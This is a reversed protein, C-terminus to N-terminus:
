ILMSKLILQKSYEVVRKMELEESYTNSKVKRLIDKSATIERKSSDANLLTNNLQKLVNKYSQQWIEQKEETSFDIMGFKILVKAWWSHIKSYITSVNTEFLEAKLLFYDSIAQQQAYVKKILNDSIEKDTKEPVIKLTERHQEAIVKDRFKVYSSLVKGLIGVHFKGYFTKMSVNELKDSSALQFALDLETLSLAPFQNM